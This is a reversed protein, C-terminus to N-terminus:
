NVMKGRVYKKVITDDGPYNEPAVSTLQAQICKWVGDTKVYTDTYQTMGTTEKGNNLITYKTVSRVLATSGIITIKENRYDWYLYKEPDFGSKWEELYDKRNLWLGKTDIQVFSDHLIQAHALADNTVFNHIFRANITKLQALDDQLYSTQASLSLM